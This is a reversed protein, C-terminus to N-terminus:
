GQFAMASGVNRATPNGSSALHAALLRWLTLFLLVYLGTGVFALAGFHTHM